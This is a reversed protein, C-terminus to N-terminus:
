QGSDETIEDGGNLTVQTGQAMAVPLRKGLIRREEGPPLGGSPRTWTLDDMTLIHGEPLDRALTISRRVAPEISTEGQSQAKDGDGLLTEAQRIRTVMATFDEPNASLQHDRFDSFNNDLTFHKEIVRAGCAVALVAADIGLTHDSYGPTGGTAEAITRIAGLNADEPLVPYSTVCHLTALECNAGGSDWVHQIIARAYQLQNLSALGCSLLIPKHFAAVTELLPYFTNDGSAIKFAPVIGNLFKASAIDFPTSLFLIGAQQAEAALQAFQDFTLAFQKLRAQRAIDRSSDFHELRFTQFKVADAGSEAAAHVLEKALGFDGEHNNGAEAIILTRGAGEPIKQM